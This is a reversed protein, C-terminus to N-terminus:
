KAPGKKTLYSLMLKKLQFRHRAGAGLGEHDFTGELIFPFFWGKIRSPVNAIGSALCPAQAKRNVRKFFSFLCTISV